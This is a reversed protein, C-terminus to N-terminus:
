RQEGSRPPLPCSCLKNIINKANGCLIKRLTPIITLTYWDICERLGVVRMSKKYRGQM